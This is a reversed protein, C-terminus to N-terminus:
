RQGAERRMIYFFDRNDPVAVFRPVTRGGSVRDVVSMGKILYELRIGSAERDHLAFYTHELANMDLLMAYRCRYAQFVRAMASPTAASFVAYFLYRERGNIQIAAAARITRLKLDQSGSWNGPGWLNVFRGPVTAKLAEDYEVIPVGNQRAHRIQQLRANDGDAWTKMDVRGDATVFITSLGPQLTSLVAGNEVFGYHSGRNRTSLDGYKFAAHTRKFGGTFVAITRAADRPNVMGTAVLPAIRGIGDPGPLAAVRQAALMHDSWEVSPHDTGGAYGVDFRDLDFAVIYCVASSEVRDLPAVSKAGDRLISAAAMGPQLISVYVGPQGTAAYWAGPALGRGGGVAEIGLNTSVLLEGATKPDVLAPLPGARLPQPLAGTTATTGTELNRDGLLQHGLDLLREGGWVRERLLDVASELRTHRGTARSRLYVRGDCLPEFASGAGAAREIASPAGSFLDCQHPRAGTLVIGQPYRADLDLKQAEPAPNELHYERAPQGAGWSVTLVYWAAISPNIDVLTATGTRGAASRIAISQSERYPQLDLVTRTAAATTVTVSVAALSCAALSLRGM